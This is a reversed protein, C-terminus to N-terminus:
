FGFWGRRRGSRIERPMAYGISYHCSLAVKAVEWDQLFTTHSKTVLDMCDLSMCRRKGVINDSSSDAQEDESAECEGKLEPVPFGDGIFSSFAESDPLPPKKQKLLLLLEGHPRIGPGLRARDYFEEKRDNAANTAWLAKAKQAERPKKVGVARSMANHSDYMEEWDEGEIVKTCRRVPPMGTLM